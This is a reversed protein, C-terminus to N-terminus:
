LDGSLAFCWYSDGSKDNYGLWTPTHKGGPSWRGLKMGGGGCVCLLARSRSVGVVVREIPRYM